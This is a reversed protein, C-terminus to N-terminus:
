RQPRRDHLVRVGAIGREVLLRASPFDTAFVVWRNDFVNPVLRTGQRPSRRRAPLSPTRRPAIRGVRDPRGRRDAGLAFARDARGRRGAQRPVGPGPLRQVAAGPPLRAPRTGPGGRDIRPGAPGGRLRHRVFRGRGPGAAGRGPSRPARRRGALHAFLVPKAWPSWPAGTPAWTEFIDRFGHRRDEPYM